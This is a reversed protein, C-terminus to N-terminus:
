APPQGEKQAIGTATAIADSVAKLNDVEAQLDAGSGGAAILDELRKFAAAQETVLGTLGSQVTAIAADLDAKNASMTEELQQLKRLVIRNPCDNSCHEKFVQEIVEKVIAKLFTRM